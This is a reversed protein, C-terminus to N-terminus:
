LTPWPRNCLERMGSADLNVETLVSIDRATRSGINVLRVFVPGAYWGFEDRARDEFMGCGRWYDRSNTTESLRFGDTHRESVVELRLDGRGNAEIRMSEHNRNIERELVVDARYCFDFRAEFTEGPALSGGYIRLDWDDTVFCDPPTRSIVLGSEYGTSRWESGLTIGTSRAAFTSSSGLAFVALVALSLLARRM